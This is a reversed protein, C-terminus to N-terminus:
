AGKCAVTASSSVPIAPEIDTYTAFKTDLESETYYSAQEDELLERLTVDAKTVFGLEGPELSVEAIVKTEEGNEPNGVTIEAAFYPRDYGDGIEAGVAVTEFSTVYGKLLSARYEGNAKDDLYEHWNVHASSGVNMDIVLTNLLDSLATNVAVESEYWWTTCVSEPKKRGDLFAGIHNEGGVSLGQLKREFQELTLLGAASGTAHAQSRILVYSVGADDLLGVIRETHMGGINIAVPVAPHASALEIASAAMVDSRESAAMLFDECAELDEEAGEPLDVRARRARSRLLTYIELTEEASAM